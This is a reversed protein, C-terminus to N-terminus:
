PNKRSDPKRMVEDSFDLWRQWDSLIVSHGAGRVCLRLPGNGHLGDTAHGPDQPATINLGMLEYVACSRQYADVSETYCNFAGKRSPSLLVPRPALTAVVCNLDIPLQEPLKEFARLAPTWWETPQYLCNPFTALGQHIVAMAIREDLAATWLASQGYRSLGVVAIRDPAIDAQTRLVDILRRARWAWVAIHGWENLPRQVGKGMDVSAGQYIPQYYKYIGSGEGARFSAFSYGRSVIYKIWDANKDKEYNGAPSGLGLFTPFPRAGQNPTVLDLHVFVEKDPALYVRLKKWTAAGDAAMPDSIIVEPAPTGEMLHEPPAYGFRYHQALRLIEPRRQTKWEALTQVPKGDLAILPDLPKNRVPLDGPAPCFFWPGEQRTTPM